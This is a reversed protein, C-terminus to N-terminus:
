WTEQKYRGTCELDQLLSEAAARGQTPAPSEKITPHWEVIVDLLAERVAKPMSGSSGSVIVFAGESLLRFVLEGQERIKDQVYVKSGTPDDRSFATFVTTRASEKKFLSSYFYDAKQHRAGFFLYSPGVEEKLAAFEARELILSRCPALGTGPAVMIVPKQMEAAIDEFICTRNFRVMVYSGPEQLAALFRTCLGRRVKQLVTKYQVVAVLLQVMTYEKGRSLVLHPGGSSISYERGRMVPFVTTVINFPLKVSNFDQLVELIGRRPRTAYDFFEDSFAPNSFELLREKHTADDTFHALLDLVKRHPIATIDLNVTLLTRLTSNAMPYFEKPSPMILFEDYFGVSPEVVFRVPKDAVENWGMLDILAQVDEPFNQPYVTLTDGARYAFTGRVRFTIERVDQWHSMPTLRKNSQLCAAVGDVIPPLLIKSRRLHGDAHMDEYPFPEKLMPCPEDPLRDEPPYVKMEPEVDFDFDVLDPPTTPTTTTPTTTTATTTASIKTEALDSPDAIQHTWKFPLLVGPPIPTVGEPLPYASQLHAQFEHSWPLFAGDTGDSHLEDAEGRPFIEKAGLGQFRVHLLRAARNFKAYSSDGLGFTTYQLGELYTKPLSKKLLSTWLRRCNKPFEGQGTTSTVLVVLTAKRISELRLTPVQKREGSKMKKEVMDVFDDMETVITKFHLRETIQGLRDAVEQSNGTESGYLILAFRNRPQDPPIEPM